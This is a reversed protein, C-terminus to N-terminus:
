YQNNTNASNAFFIITIIILILSIWFLVKVRSSAKQAAALNGSAVSPKVRAASIVAFIGVPWWFIVSWVALAWHPSIAVIVQSVPVVPPKPSPPPQPPPPQPPPAQWQPTSPQPQSKEASAQWQPTSPQPQSKQASPHWQSKESPQWERKPRGTESRSPKSGSQQADTSTQPKPREQWPFGTDTSPASATGAANEASEASEANEASQSTGTAQRTNKLLIAIRKDVAALLDTRGEMEALLQLASARDSPDSSGLADELNGVIAFQEDRTLDPRSLYDTITALYSVPISPPEPLPDPLPPPPPLNMVSGILQFAATESPQSYDIVQLRGIDPPLVEARIQEVAVPLVAKDLQTAYLREHTCAQSKISAWSVMVVLADCRRVQDLIKDWWVQGGTLETDLWVENGAQRLRQALFDARQRDARAYSFFLKVRRGWPVREAHVRLDGDTLRIAM